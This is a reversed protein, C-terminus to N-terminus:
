LINLYSVHRVKYFDEGEGNVRRLKNKFNQSMARITFRQLTAVFRLGEPVMELGPCCEIELSSLNPMAGKEVEWENLNYFRNLELTKLQLFGNASCVMKLQPFGDASDVLKDEIDSSGLYLYQLNPLRELTPMPDEELECGSLKLEILSPSFGQCYEPLKTIPLQHFGSLGSQDEELFNCRRLSILDGISKVFKKDFCFGELDLNRLLKFYKFHSNLETLYVGQNCFLISRLQNTTELDPLFVRQVDRNLHIALRRMKPITTTSTTSFCNAPDTERQLFIIRLFDNIEVKSLRLELMLDHIRCYNIRQTYTEVQVQVMCRQALVGLYRKAVDM